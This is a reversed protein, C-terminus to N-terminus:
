SDSASVIFDEGAGAKKLSIERIQGVDLDIDGAGFTVLVDLIETTVYDLLDGRNILAKDELSIKDFILKSSVGPISRERAPYIDLLAVRDAMGLAQAFEAALDRTRSYLHPQFVATVHRGPFMDRIAAMASRLETPHHAYDDVYAIGPADVHVELRRKVGKFSGIATRIADPSVGRCLAVAAAAVANEVNVKGPIETRIDHIVGGPYHLDFVFCGRGAPRLSGAHFDADADTLHYTFVKAELDDQGIGAGKKAVLIGSVQRAFTRFAARLNSLSGYSDLHDSEVSTIVATEPSLELFSRDYEDAEAVVVNGSGSLYNSGYNRSIGGLFAMCGKGSETLIHAVMTTTTTKGHTGAVAICPHLSAIMGLAQARKLVPYGKERAVRLEQLEEPVAPSYIVVTKDIDQPLAGPDDTYHVTIGEQVLQVTLESPSMDYGSVEYGSSKFYRALASMGIGGIGIFYANGM